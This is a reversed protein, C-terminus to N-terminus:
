GRLRVRYSNPIRQTLPFYELYLDLTWSINARHIIGLTEM